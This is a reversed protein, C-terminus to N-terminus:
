TTKSVGELMKLIAAGTAITSALHEKAKSLFSFDGSALDPLIILHKLV